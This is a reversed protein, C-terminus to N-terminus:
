TCTTVPCSVNSNGVASIVGDIYEVWSYTLKLNNGSVALSVLDSLFRGDMLPVHCTQVTPEGGDCPTRTLSIQMERGDDGTATQCSLSYTDQCGEGGDGEGSLLMSGLHYQVFRAEGGTATEMAAVLHAYAAHGSLTSPATASLVIGWGGAYGGSTQGAPPDVPPAIALWVRQTDSWAGLDVWPDAVTGLSGTPALAADKWRICESCLPPLFCFLHASAGESAPPVIRCAFPRPRAPSTRDIRREDFSVGGRPAGLARLIAASSESLLYRV